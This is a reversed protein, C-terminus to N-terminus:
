LSLTLWPKVGLNEFRGNYNNLSGDDGDITFVGYMGGFYDPSRSWYTLASGIGQAKCYDTAIAEQTTSASKSDLFGYDPNRM